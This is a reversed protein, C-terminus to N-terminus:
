FKIGVAIGFWPLISFIEDNLLPTFSLKWIIGENDPNYRYGFTVAPFWTELGYSLGGGLELYNNKSIHIFYNSMITGIFKSNSRKGTNTFETIPMISIGLRLNLNNTVEKEYNISYFINNGGLEFYLINTANTTKQSWCSSTMILFTFCVTIFNKKLKDATGSIKDEILDTDKIITRLSISHSKMQHKLLVPFIDTLFFNTTM